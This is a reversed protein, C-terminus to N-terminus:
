SHGTTTDIYIKYKHDGHVNKDLVVRGGVTLQDHDADVAIMEDAHVEGSWLLKHDTFDEVYAFGHSASTASVMHGDGQARLMAAPPIAADRDEMCGSLTLAGAGLVVSMLLLHSSRKVNSILVRM